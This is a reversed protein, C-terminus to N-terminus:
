AYNANAHYLFSSKIAAPSSSKYRRFIQPRASWYINTMEVERVGNSQAGIWAKDSIVIGIHNVAGNHAKFIILDGPKPTTVDEFLNSNIFGNVNTMFKGSQTPFLGGFIYAVFGSCDFGEKTRGGWKYPKDFVEKGLARAAEAIGQGTQQIFQENPSM